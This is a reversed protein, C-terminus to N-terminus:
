EDFTPYVRKPIWLDPQDSAYGCLGPPAHMWAAVPAVPRDGRGSTPRTVRCQPVHRKLLFQNKFM